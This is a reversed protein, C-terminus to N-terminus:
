QDLGKSFEPPLMDIQTDSLRRAPADDEMYLISISGLRIVDGPALLHENIRQGNVLTGGRSQRDYLTYRGHRLRLQLHHRSIRPDELVLDNDPHRGINFIEANLPVIRKGDVILQADAPPKPPEGQHNVAAMTQTTTHVDQAHSAVVALANPRVKPDAVLTIRPTEPLFLGAEQCYVIVHQTLQKSLDPTQALLPKLDDHHFRVQYHTPATERNDSDLQINDEIARVLQIAVERPQLGGRFLRAFGGEILRELREELNSFQRRNM